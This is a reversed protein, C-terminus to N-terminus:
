TSCSHDTVGNVLVSAKARERGWGRRLMWGWWWKLGERTEQRTEVFLFNLKYAKLSLLFVTWVVHM